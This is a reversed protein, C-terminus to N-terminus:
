LKGLAPRQGIRTSAANWLIPRGVASDQSNVRNGQEGIRDPFIRDRKAKESICLRDIV